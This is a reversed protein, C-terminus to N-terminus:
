VEGEGEMDNESGYTIVPPVMLFEHLVRACEFQLNRANILSSIPCAVRRGSAMKRSCEVGVTDSEDLVCGM